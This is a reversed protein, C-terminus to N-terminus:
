PRAGPPGSEPHDPHDPDGPVFDEPNVQDLFERFREVEDEDQTAMTVGAVDLVKESAVIRTASRLATAIADSPRASIQTKGGDFVMTAYFINDKMDTIQVEDLSHGLDRIMTVLLDHTLPRPPEVGQQAYAISTAEPAAIWIPLCRKGDREQLLVIPDNGPMEVRVGM